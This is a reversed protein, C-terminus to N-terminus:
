CPERERQMLWAMVASAVQAEYGRYDHKAGAIPVQLFRDSVMPRRTAAFAADRDNEAYVDLVPITVKRLNTNTNLPGDGGAWLGVGIFGCVGSNPHEALFASTMRGGMSYGLLYIREVGRQRRLFDIADTLRRAAEPFTAAYAQFQEASRAGQLVPMQLSLTHMGAERHIATRLPEVVVGRPDAGQGHALVVATRASGADLYVGDPAQAGAQGALALALALLGRHKM